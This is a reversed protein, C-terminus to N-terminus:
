PVGQKPVGYNPSVFEFVIQCKLSSVRKGEELLIRMFRKHVGLKLLQQREAIGGKM